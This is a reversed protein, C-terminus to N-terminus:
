VSDKRSRQSNKRKRGDLSNKREGSNGRDSSRRRNGSTTTRERYRNDESLRRENRDDIIKPTEFDTLDSGSESIYCDNLGNLKDRTEPSNVELHKFLNRILSEDQKNKGMPKDVSDGINSKTSETMKGM